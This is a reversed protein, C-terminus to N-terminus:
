DYFNPPDEGQLRKYTCQCCIKKYKLTNQAHPFQFWTRNSRLDHGNVSELSKKYAFLWFFGAWCNRMEEQIEFRKKVLIPHTM